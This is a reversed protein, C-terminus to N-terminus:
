AHRSDIWLRARSDSEKREAIVCQKVSFSAVKVAYKIAYKIAYRGWEDM